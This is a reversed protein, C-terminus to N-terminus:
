FPMKENFLENEKGNVLMEYAQKLSIPSHNGYYGDITRKQAGLSRIGDEHVYITIDNKILQVVFNINRNVTFLKDKFKEIYEDTETM